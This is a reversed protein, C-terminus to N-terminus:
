RSLLQRFPPVSLGPGTVLAVLGSGPLEQQEGIGVGSVRRRQEAVRDSGEDPFVGAQHSDRWKLATHAEPFPRDHGLDPKEERQPIIGRRDVTGAGLPVDNGISLEDEGSALRVLSGACMETDPM